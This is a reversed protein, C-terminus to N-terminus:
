NEFSSLPLEVALTAGERVSRAYLEGGLRRALERSVSLGLGSGGYGRTTGQDAQWFPHFIRELHDPRIGIGTDAVEIRFRDEVREARVTIHGSDTFKVSNSLLNLLIQRVWRPETRVTIDDFPEIRLELGKEAAQPQMMSLADDILERLSAETIAPPTPDGSRALMLVDDILGLLHNASRMIRGVQQLHQPGLAGSTGLEMLQAYGIIANLPTRLEHSMTRLFVTRVANAEEAAARAVEADSLAARLDANAVDLRAALAEAEARQQELEATQVLLLENQEQLTDARVQALERERSLRADRVTALARPVTFPMAVATTVSAVATIVKVGGSLWYVPQWLTWIEMFHTMGCTIIFLGFAVFAWSFPIDRRARHVLWALSVAIVVYAAGILFDATVHTWLLQPDWLYCFGHPLFQAETHDHTPM